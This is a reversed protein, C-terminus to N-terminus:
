RSSPARGAVLIRRSSRPSREKGSGNPGTILVPVDARAVKVALVLLEHMAPSAYIIGCLDHTSELERRGRSTRARLRRNDQSPERLQLLNRVTLLLREDNWPKAIYDSAGEKVLSVAAELSTFATMLLVPLDPDLRRISRLLETGEDGTTADRRFNMDQIVVGVDETQVLALAEGPTHAVLTGLGHVDFLMELATCIAPQDDVILVKLTTVSSEIAM